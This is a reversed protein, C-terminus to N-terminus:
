SMLGPVHILQAYMFPFMSHLSTGHFYKKIPRKIEAINSSLHISNIFLKTEGTNKWRLSNEVNKVTDSNYNLDRWHHELTSQLLWLKVLQM